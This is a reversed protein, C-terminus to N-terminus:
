VFNNRGDVNTVSVATGTIGNYNADTSSSLSTIQYLQNGDAVADNVGTVTITRNTNWNTNNFTVSTPSVTGEGTDTSTFSVTVNNLPESQLRITFSAQTGNEATSLGTTPAYYSRIAYM